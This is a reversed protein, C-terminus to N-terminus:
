ESMQKKLTKYKQSYMYTNFNSKSYSEFNSTKSLFLFWIKNRLRFWRGYVNNIEFSFKWRM